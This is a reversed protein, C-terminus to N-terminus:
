NQVHHLKIRSSATLNTVCGPTVKESIIKKRSCYRFRSSFPVINKLQRKEFKNSKYRFKFHINKTCVFLTCVICFRYNCSALQFSRPLQTATTHKKYMAYVFIIYSAVFQVFGVSYSFSVAKSHKKYMCVIYLSYLVYVFTLRTMYAASMIYSYRNQM